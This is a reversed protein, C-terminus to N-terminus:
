LCILWGGQGCIYMDPHEDSTVVYEMAVGYGTESDLFVGNWSSQVLCCNSYSSRSAVVPLAGLDTPRVMSECPDQVAMAVALMGM